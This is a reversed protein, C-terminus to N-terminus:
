QAINLVILETEQTTDNHQAQVKRGTRTMLKHKEEKNIACHQFRNFRTYISDYQAIFSGNSAYKVNAFIKRILFAMTEQITDNHQAEAKRGTRSMPKDREDKYIACHQFRNFRTYLIEYILDRCLLLAM